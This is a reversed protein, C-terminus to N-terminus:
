IRFTCLQSQSALLCPPSSDIAEAAHVPPAALRATDAPPPALSISASVVVSTTAPEPKSNSLDCCSSSQEASLQLESQQKARLKAMMPCGEPCHMAGASQPTCLAFSAFPLAVFIALVGVGVFKRWFRM